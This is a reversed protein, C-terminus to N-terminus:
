LHQVCDIECRALDQSNEFVFQKGGADNGRGLGGGGEWEGVGGVVGVALLGGTVGVAAVAGVLGRVQV